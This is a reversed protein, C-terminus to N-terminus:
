WFKDLPGRLHDIKLIFDTSSHMSQCTTRMNPLLISLVTANEWSLQDSFFVTKFRRMQFWLKLEFSAIMRFIERLHYLIETFIAVIREIMVVFVINEILRFKLESRRKKEVHQSLGMKTQFM